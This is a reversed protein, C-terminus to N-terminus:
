WSIFWSKPSGLHNYANSKEYYPFKAKNLFLRNIQLPIVVCEGNASVKPGTEGHHALALRLARLKKVLFETLLIKDEDSATADIVNVVFSRGQLNLGRQEKFHFGETVVMSPMICSSLAIMSLLISIFCLTKFGPTM